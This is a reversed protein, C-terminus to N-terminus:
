LLGVKLYKRQDLPSIKNQEPHFSLTPIQPYELAFLCVYTCMHGNGFETGLYAPHFRGSHLAWDEERGAPFQGSTRCEKSRPQSRCRSKLLATLAPPLPSPPPFEPLSHYAPLFALPQANCLPIKGPHQEQPWEPVLALHSRDKNGTIILMMATVAAKLYSPISTLLIGTGLGSHFRHEM